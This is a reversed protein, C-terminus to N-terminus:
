DMLDRGMDTYLRDARDLADNVAECLAAAIEAAGPSDARVVIKEFRMTKLYLEAEVLGQGDRGCVRRDTSREWQDRRAIARKLLKAIEFPNPIKM